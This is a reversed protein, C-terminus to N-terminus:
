IKLKMGDYALIIKPYQKKFKKENRITEKGLHTFIINKIGAKECWHIQTTIRAHGFIKDDRKRVLNARISSGDGIYYNVNKLIKNKNELDVIDGAYIINKRKVSIKFAIGPCKISHSVKYPIITFPGIKFKKKPHIIKYNRPKFKGYDFTKKMLYIPIQTEINEKTWIYHDPHAHTILVANTNLKELKNKQLTGYDILLKYKKYQLMLSSHYKHKRSSEEIEGKTGLFVLKIM